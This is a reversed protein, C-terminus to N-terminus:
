RPHLLGKDAFHFHASQSYSLMTDVVELPCNLPVQQSQVVLPPLYEHTSKNGNRWTNVAYDENSPQNSGSGAGIGSLADIRLLLRAQGFNPFPHQFAYIM